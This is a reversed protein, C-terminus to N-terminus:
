KSGGSNSSSPSGSGSPLKLSGGGLEVPADSIFICLKREMFMYIEPDCDSCGGAFASLRNDVRLANERGTRATLEFTARPSSM